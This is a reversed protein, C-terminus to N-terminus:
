SARQYWASAVDKLAQSKWNPHSHVTQCDMHIWNEIGPWSGPVKFYGWDGDSVQLSDDEGPQWRWLGNICIQERTPTSLKVVKDLDWVPKVGDPLPLADTQQTSKRLQSQLMLYKADDVKVMASQCEQMVARESASLASCFFTLSLVGAVSIRITNM